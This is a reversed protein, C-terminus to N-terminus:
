YNQLLISIAKSKNYCGCSIVSGNMLSDKRISKITGCDCKCKWYTHGKGETYDYELATLLGFQKGTIDTLQKLQKQCGCSTTHHSTLHSMSVVTENGCECKCLWHTGKGPHEVRYLVLLKGFTQNTLDKARGVPIQKYTKEM